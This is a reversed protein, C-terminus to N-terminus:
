GEIFQNFLRPLEDPEFPKVLFLSAGAEMAETEVNLGSTVIIPLSAYEDRGRLDRVIEVGDMDQLHYDMLIADPNQQLVAPVVDAGRRIPIVDFGELELLTQLLKVTVSDDDVIMINAM